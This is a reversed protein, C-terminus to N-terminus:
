YTVKQVVQRKPDHSWQSMSGAYLKAQKNGLLEYSTFWGLSAWHGTNCFNIEEGSTPIGATKYLAGLAKASRFTGGGNVTVWEQPLNRAGPITGARADMPPKSIGLYQSSPRDDV